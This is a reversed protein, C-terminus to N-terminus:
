RDGPHGNNMLRLKGKQFYGEVVKGDSKFLKGQGNEQNQFLGGIYNDGNAYLKRGFGTNGDKTYFERIDVMYKSNFERICAKRNHSIPWQGEEESELKRNIEEM